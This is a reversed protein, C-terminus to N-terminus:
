CRDVWYKPRLIKPLLHHALHPLLLSSHLVMTLGAMKDLPLVLVQLLLATASADELVIGCALVFYFREALKLYRWTYTSVM